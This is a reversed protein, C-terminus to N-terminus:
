EMKTQKGVACDEQTMVCDVAESGALYIEETPWSWVALRQLGPVVGSMGKPQARPRRRVGSGQTGPPGFAM